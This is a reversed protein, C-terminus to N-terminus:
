SILIHGADQPLQVNMETSVVSLRKDKDQALRIIEVGGYQKELICLM